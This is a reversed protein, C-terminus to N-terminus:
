KDHILRKQLKEVITSYIRNFTAMEERSIEDIVADEHVALEKLIATITDHGKETLYLRTRRRDAPHPERRILGNKELQDLLSTITQRPIFLTGSLMAPEIDKEARLMTDLIILWTYSIGRKKCWEAYIRNEQQVLTFHRYFIEDTIM